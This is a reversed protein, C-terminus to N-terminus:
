LLSPLPLPQAQEAEPGPLSPPGGLPLSSLGLTLLCGCPLSAAVPSLSCCWPCVSCLLPLFLLCIPSGRLPLLYHLGLPLHPSLLSPPLFIFSVVPSLFPSRQAGEAPGPGLWSEGAGGSVGGGDPLLPGSCLRYPLFSCEGRHPQRLVEPAGVCVAAM